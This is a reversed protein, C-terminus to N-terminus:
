IRKCDTFARVLRHMRVAKESGDSSACVFYQFVPESFFDFIFRSRQIYTHMNLSGNKVSDKFRDIFPRLDHSRCYM